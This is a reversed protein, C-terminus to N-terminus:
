LLGIEMNTLQILSSCVACIKCKLGNEYSCEYISTPEIYVNKFDPTDTTVIVKLRELKFLDRSKKHQTGKASLGVLNRKSM